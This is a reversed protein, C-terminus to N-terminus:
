KIGAAELAKEIAKGGEAALDKTSVEGAAWGLLTSLPPKLQDALKKLDRTGPKTSSNKKGVAKAVVKETVKKGGSDKVLEDLKEDQAARELTALASAAQASVVGDDVAKKVKPSLDLITLWQKIRQVSVGFALAVEEESKVRDLMRQAKKACVLPSDGERHANEAIMTGMMDGDSGREVFCPVLMPTEGQKKFRRNAERAAKVRQRGAVVLVRNGDKQVSVAQKVGKAMINLLFPESVPLKAREDYLPHEPGDETDLGIIVLNEPNVAFANLRRGDIAQKAM